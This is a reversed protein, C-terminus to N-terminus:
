QLEMIILNLENIGLVLDSSGLVSGHLIGNFVTMFVQTQVNCKPKQWKTIVSRTANGRSGMAKSRGQGDMKVFAKTFHLRLVDLVSNENVM